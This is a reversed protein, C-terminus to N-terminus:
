SVFARKMPLTLRDVMDIDQRGALDHEDILALQIRPL